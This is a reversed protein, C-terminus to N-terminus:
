IDLFSSDRELIKNYQRKADDTTHVSLLQEKIGNAAECATRGVGIKGNISHGISSNPVFSIGFPVSKGAIYYGGLEQRVRVRRIDVGDGKAKIFFLIM